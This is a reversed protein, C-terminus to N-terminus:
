SRQKIELTQPIIIGMLIIVVGIWQVMSVVENLVWASLLVATPLEAAGLITAMGTGIHPVGIAFFLTPIVIGLIALLFGFMFLSSFLSGDILFLPPFVIVVVITAGTVMWTSRELPDAEIVATGSWYIFLAYSVASLLGLGLGIWAVAIAQEIMGSALCTGIWLMFLSIMKRRSPRCRNSIAELVVGMWTFQFLLIIALSAQVYQLCAYYLISTIGITTGVAMLVCKQKMLLRKRLKLPENIGLKNNRKRRASIFFTIMWLLMMGLVMQSGVVQHVTYNQEYAFKVLVSLIGYSCAGLFVLLMSKM